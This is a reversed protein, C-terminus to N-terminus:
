FSPIFNCKINPINLAQIFSIMLTNDNIHAMGQMRIEVKFRFM